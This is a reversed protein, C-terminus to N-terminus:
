LRAADGFPLRRLRQGTLAYWANGVAPAVAPVGLEGVGGPSEGSAVLEVRVRPMSAHRLLPYDHFNSQQVAGAAITIEGHLCASLAFAVGGELQAEIISPDLALGCDAVCWIQRVELSGSPARAVEAVQAVCSDFAACAALGLASGRERPRPHSFGSIERAREICARLRHGRPLLRLRLDAPDVGQRAAAEDLFTEWAFTNHSYGVSRWIGIRVPSTVGRWEVRLAGFSYPVDGAGSLAIDDRAGQELPLSPDTLTALQHEVHQGDASQTLRHVAAQRYVGSRLDDERSWCLQVPRQLVRAVRLAEEAELMSTKRGFGGGILTTHVVVRAEDVELLRAALRRMSDPDQTPAWIECGGPTPRVSCNPPELPAHALLPVEYLAELAPPSHPGDGLERVLHGPHELAELLAGRLEGSSPGAAPAWEISLASAGRLAAWTSQAAVAVAAPLVVVDLVGAVARAAADDVTQLSGGLRPCRRLAVRVSGPLAVDQGFRAGGDVKADVDVRRTSRGLLVFDVPAKLAPVLPPRRRAAAAALEGYGLRRGTAEHVVFGARTRCDAPRAGLAEAGAELLMQRASAGARRLEVWLSRVSSSGATFLSGFDYRGQSPAQRVVVRDFDADLEEAVIAPLTTMVGQGMESKTCWITVTGQTDLALYACPNFAGERQVARAWRRGPLKGVVLWM